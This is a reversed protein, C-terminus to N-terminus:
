KIKLKDDKIVFTIKVEGDIKGFDNINDRNVLDKIVKINEKGKLYKVIDDTNYRKSTDTQKMNYDNFYNLVEYPNEVVYKELIVEFKKKNVKKMKKLEYKVIPTNAIDSQTKNNKYKFLNSTSDYIINKDLMRSSIGIKSIEEENYNIDFTNNIVELLETMSFEEKGKENYLYEAAFNIYKGNDDDYLYIEDLYNSISNCTEEIKIKELNTLKKSNMAFIIVLAIILVIIAILIAIFKKNHLIEKIKNM